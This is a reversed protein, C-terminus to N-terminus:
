DIRLDFLVNLMNMKRHFLNLQCVILLRLLRLEVSDNTDDVISDQTLNSEQQAIDALQKMFDSQGKKKLSKFPDDQDTDHKKKMTEEM